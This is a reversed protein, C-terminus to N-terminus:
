GLLLLDFLKLDRYRIVLSDTGVHCFDGVEFRFFPSDVKVVKDSVINLYKGLDCQNVSIEKYCEVLYDRDVIYYLLFPLRMEKETMIDDLDQSVLLFRLILIHIYSSIEFVSIQLDYISNIYMSVVPLNSILCKPYLSLYLCNYRVPSIDGRVIDHRFHRISHPLESPKLATLDLIQALHNIEM